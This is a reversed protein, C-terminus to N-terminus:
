SKKRMFVLVSIAMLAGTLAIIWKAAVIFHFLGFEDGIVPDKMWKLLSLNEYIDAGWAVAQLIASVLLITKLQGAAKHRAMMSLAAIGPFVGAMFVFDFHLHYSLVTRVQDDLGTMVAIVKEKPYFLELGMISFKEGNAYLDSEMWKMCFAAAGFLGLCFLFLNKWYKTAPKM